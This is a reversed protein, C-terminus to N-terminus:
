DPAVLFSVDFPTLIETTTKETQADMKKGSLLRTEIRVNGSKPDAGLSKQLIIKTRTVDQLIPDQSSSIDLEGKSHTIVQYKYLDGAKGRRAIHIAEGEARALCPAVFLILAFVAHPAAARFRSPAFM